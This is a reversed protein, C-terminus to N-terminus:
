RKKELPYPNRFTQLSNLTLSVKKPPRPPAPPTSVCPPTPQYRVKTSKNGQTPSPVVTIALPAQEEDDSEDTGDGDLNPQVSGIIRRATDFITKSGKKMAPANPSLSALFADDTKAVTRRAPM